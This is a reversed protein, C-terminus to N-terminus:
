VGENGDPKTEITYQVPESAAIRSRMIKLMYLMQQYASVFQLRGDRKGTLVIQLEELVPLVLATANVQHSVGLFSTLLNFDELRKREQSLNFKVTLERFNYFWEDDLPANGQDSEFNLGHTMPYFAVSGVIPISPSDESAAASRVLTFRAVTM